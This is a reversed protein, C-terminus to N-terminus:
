KLKIKNCEMVCLRWLASIIFVLGNKGKRDKRGVGAM